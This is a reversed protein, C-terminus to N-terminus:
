SMDYYKIEGKSEEYVTHPIFMLVKPVRSNGDRTYRLQIGSYRYSNFVPLQWRYSKWEALVEEIVAKQRVGDIVRIQKGNNSLCIYVEYKGIYDRGKQTKPNDIGFFPEYVDVLIDDGSGSIRFKIQVKKEVGNEVLIRDIKENMDAERSVKKLNFGHKNVLCDAIADEKAKGALYRKRSPQENLPIDDIM